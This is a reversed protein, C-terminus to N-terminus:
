SSTSVSPVETTRKIKHWPRTINCNWVRGLFIQLIKNKFEYLPFKSFGKFNWCNPFRSVAYQYNKKKAGLTLRFKPTYWSCKVRDHEPFAITYQTMFKKYYMFLIPKYITVSKKGRWTGSHWTRWMIVCLLVVCVSMRGVCCEIRTLYEVYGITSFFSTM